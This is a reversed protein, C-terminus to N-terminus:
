DLGSTLKKKLANREDACHQLLPEDNEKRVVAQKYKAISILEPEEEELYYQVNDLSSKSGFYKKIFDSGLDTSLMKKFTDVTIYNGDKEKPTLKGDFITAPKPGTKNKSYEKNIMFIKKACDKLEQDTLFRKSLHKKAADVGTTKVEIGFAKFLQMLYLKGDETKNQRFFNSLENREESNINIGLERLALTMEQESITPNVKSSGPACQKKFVEEYNKSAEVRFGIQGM